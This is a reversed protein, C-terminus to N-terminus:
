FNFHIESMFDIMLKARWVLIGSQAHVDNLKVLGAEFSFM